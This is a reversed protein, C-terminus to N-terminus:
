QHLVSPTGIISTFLLWLMFSGEQGAYFTSLLLGFPLDSNSYNFVYKYQYQHTIIAQLLLASAIIILIAATHYSIRAAKITNEYGKLKLAYMFVSFLSALLALTLLTNGIM